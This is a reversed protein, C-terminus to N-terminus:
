WFMMVMYFNLFFQNILAWFAIVHWLLWNSSHHIFCKWLLWKFKRHGIDYRKYLVRPTLHVEYLARGFDQNKKMEPWICKLMLSILSFTSKESNNSNNVEHNPITTYIHRGLIRWGSSFTQKNWQIICMLNLAAQFNSFTM